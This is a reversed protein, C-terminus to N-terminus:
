RLERLELVGDAHLVRAADLVYGEVRAAQGAPLEAALHAALQALSARGDVRRLLAAVLPSCPIEESRGEVVIAEGWVFEGEGLVPRRAVRV